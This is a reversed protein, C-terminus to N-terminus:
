HTPLLGAESYNEGYPADAEDSYMARSPTSAFRSSGLWDAHRYYSVGSSNFVATAGGGRCRARAVRGPKAGIFFQSLRARFTKVLRLLRALSSAHDGQSLALTSARRRRPARPSPRPRAVTM